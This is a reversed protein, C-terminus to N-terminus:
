LTEGSISIENMWESIQLNAKSVDQNFQSSKKTNLKTNIESRGAQIDPCVSKVIVCLMTDGYDQSIFAYYINFDTLKLKTYATLANINRLSMMKSRLCKQSIIVWRSDDDAASGYESTPHHRKGCTKVDHAM